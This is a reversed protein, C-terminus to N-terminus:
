AFIEEINKYKKKPIQKLYNAAHAKFKNQIIPVWEQELNKEGSLKYLDMISGAEVLSLYNSLSDLITKYNIAFTRKSSIKSILEDLRTNGGGLGAGDVTGDVLTCGASIAALTNELAFGINDHGHFGLPGNWFKKIKYILSSLESSMITGRSDAIYICHAVHRSVAYRIASLLEEEGFGTISIFNLSVMYGLEKAVKAVAIGAELSTLDLPIRIMDILGQRKQLVERPAITKPSVMGALKVKQVMAQLKTLLDVPCSFGLGKEPHDNLYGIEVIDVGVTELAEVTGVIQEASFEWNNLYGGDRLTADLICPTPINWM